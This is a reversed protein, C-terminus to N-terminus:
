TLPERAVLKPVTRRTARAEDHGDCYPKIRVKHRSLRTRVLIKQTTQRYLQYGSKFPTSLTLVNQENDAEAIRCLNREDRATAKRLRETRKKNATPNEPRLQTRCLITYVTFRPLAELVSIQNNSKVARHWTIVAARKTEFVEKKRTKPKFPM